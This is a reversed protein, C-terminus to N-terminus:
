DDVSANSITWGVSTRCALISRIAFLNWLVARIAEKLEKASRRPLHGAAEMLTFFAAYISGIVALVPSLGALCLQIWSRQLYYFKRGLTSSTQSVKHWAVSSLVFLVM